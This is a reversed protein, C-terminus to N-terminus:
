YQRGLILYFMNFCENLLNNLSQTKIEESLKTIREGFVLGNESLADISYSNIFYRPDRRISKELALLSKVYDIDPTARRHSLFLELEQCFIKFVIIISIYENKNNQSSIILCYTENRIFILEVTNKIKHKAFELFFCSAILKLSELDIVNNFRIGNVIISNTFYRELEEYIMKVENM